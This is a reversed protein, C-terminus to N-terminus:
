PFFDERRCNRFLRAAEPVLPLGGRMETPIAKEFAAYAEVYRELTEQYVPDEPSRTASAAMWPGLAFTLRDNAERIADRNALCFFYRAAPSVPEPSPPTAAAREQEERLQASKQSQLRQDITTLCQQFLRAAATVTGAQAAAEQRCVQRGQESVPPRSPQCAQLQLLLLALAADLQRM